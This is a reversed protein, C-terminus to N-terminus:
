QQRLTPQPFPTGEGDRAEPEGALRDRKADPPVECGPDDPGDGKQSKEGQACEEVAGQHSPAKQQDPLPEARADGVTQDRGGRRSREEGAGSEDQAM